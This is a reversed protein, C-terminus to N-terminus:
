EDEEGYGSYRKIAEIVEKFERDYDKQAELSETKARLLRNEERLREIELSERTTDSKKLFYTIVQSSATGERIQKEALAMALDIVEKEKNKRGRNKSM